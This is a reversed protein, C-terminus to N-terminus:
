AGPPLSLVDIERLRDLAREIAADDGEVRGLGISALAVEYRFGDTSSLEIARAYAARAEGGRHMAELARGRLRCLMAPLVPIDGLATIAHDTADALALAGTWDEAIVAIEVQRVLSDAAYDDAGLIRFGALAESQLTRGLETDGRWAAVRSLGSMTIFTGLPYNAAQTVRKAHTLLREAEDLRMQLTRVEAINNDSLAAGLVYGAREYRESSMAFDAVADTARAQTWASIGRNLYLNGLGLSDDLEILLQEARDAHAAQGPLGLASCCWESLIHAQAELRKDAVTSSDALLEEALTLCQKWQGLYNRIRARALVLHGRMAPDNCAALSRATLVLGARYRGVFTLVRVRDVAIEAREASPAMRGARRSADLSADPHGAREAASALQRLAALRLGRAARMERQAAIVDRLLREAVEMAGKAMAADAARQNYEAIRTAIGSGTAHFALAAVFDAVPAGEGWAEIVDGARAHVAKRRRVSLGEYSAVRVLDHRFQVTPGDIVVLDGFTATWLAPDILEPRELIRAAL